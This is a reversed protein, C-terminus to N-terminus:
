LRNEGTRRYVASNARRRCFATACTLCPLSAVPPVYWRIRYPIAAMSAEAPTRSAMRRGNRDLRLLAMGASTNTRGASTPTTMPPKTAPATPAPAPNRAKSQNKRGGSLESVMREGWFQTASPTYTATTRITACTTAWSPRARSSASRRFSSAPRSCSNDCAKIPSRVSGWSSVWMTSVTCATKAGRQVARTNGGDAPSSGVGPSRSSTAAVEPWSRLSASTTDRVEAPPSARDIPSTPPGPVCCAETASTTFLRGTPRSTSWSTSRAPSSRLRSPVKALWDASAM